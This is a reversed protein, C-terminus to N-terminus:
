GHSNEKIIYFREAFGPAARRLLAWLLYGSLVGLANLIIDDIDFYRGVFIQWCEIGATIALGLFLARKWTWGRWLLATLFGFPLFMVINGALNFGSDLDSFPLLSVRRDLGGLDFLPVHDAGRLIDLLWGPGPFLTVAAMGGCYMWFLCVGCERLASSHLGRAELRRRRYRFLVLFVLAGFALGPTMYLLYHLVRKM